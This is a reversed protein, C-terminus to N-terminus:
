AAGHGTEVGVRDLLAQPPFYLFAKQYYLKSSLNTLSGMQSWNLGFYM